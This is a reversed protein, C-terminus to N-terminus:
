RKKPFRGSRRRRPRRGEDDVFQDFKRELRALGSTNVAILSALRTFGALMEGRLKDFAFETYERQEVFHESVEDFRKDIAEFREDVADFRKDVADFRKDVADFRQNVEAFREDISDSLADLKQEIQEVRTPLGELNTMEAM